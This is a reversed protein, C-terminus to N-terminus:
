LNTIADRAAAILAFNARANGAPHPSASDAYDNSIQWTFVARLGMDSASEVKDQITDVSDFGWLATYTPSYYDSQNTPSPNQIKVAGFYRGLPFSNTIQGAANASAVIQSYPVPNAANFAASPNSTNRGYQAIGMGLKSRSVGADIFWQVSQVSRAVGTHNYVVVGGPEYLPQSLDSPDDYTMVNIQDAYAQCAVATAIKLDPDAVSLSPILTLHVEYSANYAKVANYIAQMLTAMRTPNCATGVPEYDIDVGKAGCLNMLTVIQQAAATAQAPSAGALDMNNSLSYGGISLIFNTTPVSQATMYAITNKLAWASYTYDPNGPGVYTGQPSGTNTNWATGAPNLVQAAAPFGTPNGFYLKSDLGNVQVEALLYFKNLLSLANASINSARVVPNLGSNAVYPYTADTNRYQWLDIYSGLQPTSPTVGPTIAIVLSTTGVQISRASDSYINVSLTYPGPGPLSAALTQTFSASNATVTTSGVLSGSTFFAGVIGTGSMQWYLTTGNSVNATTITTTIVTNETAATPSTNVVYTPVPPTPTPPTPGAPVLGYKIVPLLAVNYPRTENPVPATPPSNDVTLGTVISDVTIGTTCSAVTINTKESVVSVNTYTDGAVNSARMTFGTYKAADPGGLALTSGVSYSNGGSTITVEKVQGGFVIVTAVAGSGSGSTTNVPIGAYTGDAQTVTVASLNNVARLPGYSALISSPGSPAGWQAAGDYYGATDGVVEANAIGSIAHCHNGCTVGHGHWINPANSLHSHQPLAFQHIHGPDSVAHCHQKYASGQTSAFTRLPDLASPTPNPGAGSWGRIFQGRLDPIRFFGAPDGPQNYTTGILEYLNYYPGNIDGDLLRGDCEMWVGGLPVTALQWIISGIPWSKLSDGSTWDMSGQTPKTDDITLVTGNDGLPLIGPTEFGLGVILDGKTTINATDLSSDVYTKLANATPTQTVSPDSVSDSLLVLGRSSTTARLTGISSSTVARTNDTFAQTEADTALEVFGALTESAVMISLGGPTVVKNPETLALVEAPTSLITSGFVTTSAPLLRQGCLIIQWTGNICYVRDQSVVSTAVGGPPTYTGTATITFYAKNYTASAAPLPSGVTLGGVAVGDPTLKAINGTAPNITGAFYQGALSSGIISMQGGLSYGQLATLATTTSQSYVDDTLQVAGPAALTAAKVGINRIPNTGTTYIPLTGVLTVLPANGNAALTIKGYGNVSITPYTYSGPVVTAVPELGITGATTIGSLPSTELGIGATVQRVTGDNPPNPSIYVNGTTYDVFLYNGFVLQGTPYSLNYRNADPNYFPNNPIPDQPNFPPIGAM